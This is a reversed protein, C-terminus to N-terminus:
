FGSVIEGMEKIPEGSKGYETIRGVEKGDKMIIFTPVRTISFATSLNDLTTKSRDVGILTINSDAYGAADTMKFFQPLINHTDECWTGGFIIMKFNGAHAKFAAVTNANPKGLKYSEKFWAFTTDDNEIDSRKLLGRLTTENKDKNYFTQYPKTSDIAALSTQAKCAFINLLIIAPLIINKM